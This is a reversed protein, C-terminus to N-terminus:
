ARASIAGVLANWGATPANTAVLVHWRKIWDEVEHHDLSNCDDGHKLLLKMYLDKLGPVDFCEEVHTPVTLESIQRFMDTSHQIRALRAEQLTEDASPTLCVQTSIMNSCCVKPQTLIMMMMMMMLTPMMLMVCCSESMKKASLM